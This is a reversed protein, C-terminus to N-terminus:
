NANTSTSHSAVSELRKLVEILSQDHDEDYGLIDDSMNTQREIDELNKRIKIKQSNKQHLHYAWTYDNIYGSFGGCAELTFPTSPKGTVNM